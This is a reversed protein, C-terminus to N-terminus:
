NSRQKNLLPVYRAARCRVRSSVGHAKLLVGAGPVQGRHVRLRPGAHEHVGAQRVAAGQLCCQLVPMWRQQELRRCLVSRPLPCVGDPQYSYLAAKRLEWSPVPWVGSSSIDRPRLPSVQPSLCGPRVVQRLHGLALWLSLFCQDHQPVM